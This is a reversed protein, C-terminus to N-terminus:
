DAMMDAMDDMVDEIEDMNFKSMQEQQAKTAEKM